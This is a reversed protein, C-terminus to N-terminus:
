SCTSRCLEQVEEHVHGARTYPLLRSQWLNAFIMVLGDQNLGDVLVTDVTDLHV